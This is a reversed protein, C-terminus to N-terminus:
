DLGHVLPYCGDGDLAQHRGTGAHRYEQSGLELREDDIDVRVHAVRKGQGDVSHLFVAGEGVVEDGVKEHTQIRFQVPDDDVVDIPVLEEGAHDDGHFVFQALLDDFDIGPGAIGQDDRDLVFPGDVNRVLNEVGDIVHGLHEVVDLVLRPFAFALFRM